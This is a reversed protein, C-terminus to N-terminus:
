SKVKSLPSPTRTRTREPGPLTSVRMLAGNAAEARNEHGKRPAADEGTTRTAEWEARLHHFCCRGLIAACGGPSWTNRWSTSLPYFKSGQGPSTPAPAPAAATNTSIKLNPVPPSGPSNRGSRQSCKHAESKLIWRQPLFGAAQQLNPTTQARALCFPRAQNKAETYLIM